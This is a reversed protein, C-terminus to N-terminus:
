EKRGATSIKRRRALLNRLNSVHWRGGRRTRIGRASLEEAIDRLTSYGDAHVAPYLMQRRIADNHELMELPTAARDARKATRGLKLVFM